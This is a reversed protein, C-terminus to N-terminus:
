KAYRRAVHAQRKAIEARRQKASIIVTSEPLHRMLNNLPVRETAPTAPKEDSRIRWNIYGQPHGSIDLWNRVGPDRHSLVLRLVGDEDVRAQNLNLSTQRHSYDLTESWPNYLTWGWYSAGEPIPVEIILAEDEAVQYNGSAFYSGLSAIQIIRPEVISNDPIWDLSDSISLWYDLIHNVDKGASVLRRAVQEPGEIPPSEGASGIREIQFQGKEEAEWDGFIQYITISTAGEVLPLWNGERSEGGIVLEFNGAADAILDRAFVREGAQGDKTDGAYSGITTHNATGLRGWIRYSYRDSVTASLYLNDPNSFGWKNSLGVPVFFHPFAPDGYALHKRQTLGILGALHRYADAQSVPDGFYRSDRLSQEARSLSESYAQWAETLSPAPPEPSGCGALLLGLLGGLLLARHQAIFTRLCDTM